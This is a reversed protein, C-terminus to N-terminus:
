EEGLIGIGPASPLRGMTGDKFVAYAEVPGRRGAWRRPIAACWGLGPLKPLGFAAAVDGRFVHVPLIRGDHVLIVREAPGKDRADCTWGFVRVTGDDQPVTTELRGCDVVQRDVHSGDWRGGRAPTCLCTTMAATATLFLAGGFTVLSWCRLRVARMTPSDVADGAASVDPEAIRAGAPMARWVARVLSVVVQWGALLYITLLVNVSLHNHRLYDEYGDGLIILFMMAYALLGCIPVLLEVGVPRKRWLQIAARCGYWGVPVIPLLWFAHRRAGHLRAVLDSISWRPVPTMYGEEVQGLHAILLGRPQRDLEALARAVMRGPLSPDDWFLRLLRLRSVHFVEPCPHGNAMRPDYWNMGIYEVCRPPMGLLRVARERDRALPLIGALISNTLNCRRLSKTTDVRHVDWAGFAAGALAGVCLPIALRRPFRGVIIWDAALIGAALLVATPGHQQKSTALLFLLVALLISRGPTPGALIVSMGALVAWCFFFLAGLECYFGNLHLTNIPDGALVAVILSCALAAATHGRHFFWGCYAAGLLVVLLAQSFGLARVDFVTGPCLREILWMAGVAPAQLLIQSSYVAGGSGFEAFGFRRWPAQPHNTWPVGDVPWLGYRAMLRMMDYNDAYALLPRSLADGVLRWSGLALLLV